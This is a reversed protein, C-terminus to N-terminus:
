GGGRSQIRFEVGEDGAGCAPLARAASAATCCTAEELDGSGTRNMARLCDMWRHKAIAYAWAVFPRGPDYTHRKHHIGLLTEQLADEILHPPLRRSFFRKLWPTIETLLTRYAIRDGGLADEM